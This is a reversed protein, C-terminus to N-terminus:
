PSTESTKSLLSAQLTVDFSRGLVIVAVFTVAAAAWVPWVVGSVSHLFYATAFMAFLVVTLAVAWWSARGAAFGSIWVGTLRKYSGILLGMGFLIILLIVISGVEGGLASAPSVGAALLALIPHYWWPTILREAAAARAADIASLAARASRVDNNEM